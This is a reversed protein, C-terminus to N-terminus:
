PMKHLSLNDKGEKKDAGCPDTYAAIPAWHVHMVLKCHYISLPEDCAGEVPRQCCHLAVQLVDENRLLPVQHLGEDLLKVPQPHAVVRFSEALWTFFLWIVSGHYFLICSTLGFLKLYTSINNPKKYRQFLKLLLLSLITFYNINSKLMNFSVQRTQTSNGM